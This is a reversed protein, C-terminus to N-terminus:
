KRRKTVIGLISLVILLAFIPNGTALRIEADGIDVHKTTTENELIVTITVSGNVKTDNEKCYVTVNNTLDGLGNTLAEVWVSVFNGSTINSINFEVGNSLTKATIVAGNGNVIGWNSYILTDPLSDTLIVETATGSGINNVTITFNVLTNNYTVDVDATINVNLSVDYIVFTSDNELETYYGDGVHKSKINYTGAKLNELEITIKGDVDTVKIDSNGSMLLLNSNETNSGQVSGGTLNYLIVSGDENTILIDLLQADEVPNDKPSQWMMSNDVFADTSNQLANENFKLWKRGDGDQSFECSINALKITDTGGDNWIANAINDNGLLYVHVAVKNTPALSENGDVVIRIETSNARNKGFIVKAIILDTADEVKYIASGKSANNGTFVLNYFNSNSGRLFIAGGKDKAFNDFFTSNFIKGGDGGLYAAGGVDASNDTFRCQNIDAKGFIYAAGGANVEVSNNNLICNTLKLDDSCYIAGGSFSAFNNNFNSNYVIGSEWFDIAGGTRAKNNTFNCNDVEGVGYVYVAGGSQADNNNFNSNYIKGDMGFYVAGAYYVAKNNTFNCDTIVGDNTFYVAGGDEYSGIFSNNNFECNRVTGGDEFYIAGGRREAANNWFSTNEIVGNNIAIAGGNEASNGIFIGNFIVNEFTEFFNTGGGYKAKNNIFNSNFTINYPTQRYNVGGGHLVATNNVFDCTFISNCSTNKFTIAGGNGNSSDIKGLASNNIFYGSFNNYNTTYYFFMAGGCSQAVNFRFDSNFRNNNAKNYFFIGAGYAGDNYRFISEFQNNEVLSRFFMAGGSTKACNDYFESAITNNISEGQVAIAGGTKEASNGEFYGKITMNAINGGFYIAGGANASNNIFTSDIECNSFGNEVYIAGGNGSSHGNVFNINKLTVNNSVIDFIRAQVAGNITHGSGDIVINDQTIKIGNKYDSDNSNYTYDKKLTFSGGSIIKSIEDNLETFSGAEATSQYGLTLQNTQFDCIGIDDSISDQANVASISSIFIFLILLLLKNNLFNVGM